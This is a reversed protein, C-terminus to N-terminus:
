PEVYTIAYQDGLETALQEALAQGRTRFQREAGEDAFGSDPPYDQNLTADFDTAWQQLSAVLGPSIPLTAPGINAGEGWLPFCQYDAM